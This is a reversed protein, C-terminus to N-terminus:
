NDTSISEESTSTPLPSSIEPKFPLNESQRPTACERWGHGIGGCGWCIMDENNHETIGQNNQNTIPSMLYAIQQTIAKYSPDFSTGESKSDIEVVASKARHESVDSGSTETDAKRAVMVLQSYQLNPTDYLHHLANHIDSKLGHLLCDKLHKVGEEDTMAHLHQQKIAKPAQELQLVFTQVRESKEQVIQYFEQMLTDFSEVSGYLWKFKEIIDDLTTGPPLCCIADAADGVCSRNIVARVLQKNFTKRADSISHLWQEFRVIDKERQVLFSHYDPCKIGFPTVLYGRCLHAVQMVIFVLNSDSKMEDLRTNFVVFEVGTTHHAHEIVRLLEATNVEDCAIVLPKGLWEDIKEIVSGIEEALIGSSYTVLFTTENLAHVGRPKVHTGSILVEKAVDENQFVDPLIERGGILVCVTLTTVPETSVSNTESM